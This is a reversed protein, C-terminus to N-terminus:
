RTLQQCLTEMIGNETWEGVGFVQQLRQIDKLNECAVYIEYATGGVVVATGIVPISEAPIAALTRKILQKTRLTVSKGFRKIASKRQLTRQNDMKMQQDKSAIIKQQQDLKLDRANLATELISTVTAIGFATGIVSSLVTTFPQYLLTLLNTTILALIIATLIINKLYSIL